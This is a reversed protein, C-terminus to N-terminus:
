DNEAEQKALILEEEIKKDEEKIRIYEKKGIPTIRFVFYSYKCAILITLIISVAVKNVFWMSVILMASVCTLLILEGYITMVRHNAFNGIHNKYLKSNLFWDAFKKSGRVFCFATLLYFPVTPLIPLVIGITGLVLSIFGVILFLVRIVRSKVVKEDNKNKEKNEM